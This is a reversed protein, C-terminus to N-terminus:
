REKGDENPATYPVECGGRSTLVRGGKEDAWLGDALKGIGGPVDGGRHLRIVRRGADFLAQRDGLAQADILVGFSLSSGPQGAEGPIAADRPHDATLQM